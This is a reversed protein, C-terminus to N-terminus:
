KCPTIEYFVVGNAALEIELTLTSDTVTHVQEAPVLRSCEEYKDRLKEFYIKRAEPNKLTVTSEIQPDEPSWGFCDDGIGYTKRDEIWEDFFNCNDDVVYATVKVKKGNLQPVNINFILDATKDYDVDNKFNYAMIRLTENAQDYAAVTDVETDYLVGNKVRETFLRNLGKFLSINKAIHWSVTPYGNFLGGSLYYWSSFYDGSSDFLQKYLRADYAAQYTYGVTRSLLQSDDAGAANGSLIRGEDIGFILNKLGANEACTKLYGITEPLTKGSTFEGPKADYFSGSLFCVRTGTKGTKHNIGSACHEIFIKEDWLGETVTMSHAGVFVNEGIVKQLADVSYDYLKCYAASSSEPTKDAAMFWDANEYETMIGFRWTLVEDAGFEDVLAQAMAAIYNYYVDYDDPPYINTGFYEDESAKASYKLPVSGLKLHPKMGMSVIGKCNVILKSFDYDDLVNFNYPDVFLDRSANGGTCQMLQVYEVFDTINYKENIKPNSFETSEYANWININSVANPLIDGQQSADINFEYDNVTNGGSFVIGPLAVLVSIIYSLIKLFTSM